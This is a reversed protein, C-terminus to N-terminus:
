QPQHELNGNLETLNKEKLEKILGFVLTVNLLFTLADAIAQATEVGTLGFLKPLILIAPIFFIGQRASSAITAKLGYGLSQFSMNVIVSFAHLPLVLCQFRLTRSAIRIVELDDARFVGIVKPAFIFFIVGLGSLFITAVKISFKFAEMVRAFKKAGYNFGAVPMYGQGFGILASYTFMVIRTTISVEAVAPDGYPSAAVNLFVSAASAIGQRYFTPLGTRLIEKYVKISFEINTFRIKISGEIYNTQIILIIFSVFQSIITAIAAGSIGMNFGFILLPDLVINLVGGATIGLMSRVANGQSRLAVNLVFSGCMWPAGILIYRGYDKAYPAITETAGLFVVLKDINYLGFVALLLGLFVATFFGTAAVREASKTDQRGLSRSIYTGSGMAITFGIAQIMAMLSFDVGVAGAASTGIQSVFFTDAMNYISTILMSVITPVAIKPILKTIPTETMMIYKDDKEMQREKISLVTHTGISSM